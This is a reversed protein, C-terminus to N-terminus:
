THSHGTIKLSSQLGSTINHPHASPNEPLSPLFSIQNRSHMSSLTIFEHSSICLQSSIFVLLTIGTTCNMVQGETGSDM